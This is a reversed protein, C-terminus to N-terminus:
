SKDPESKPDNNGNADGPVILNGSSDIMMYNVPTYYNDGSERPPRGEEKRVENPNLIGWKVFEIQKKLIFSNDEKAPNDFACFIRIGDAQPYLPIISQNIKDSFLRNRPDITQEEYTNSGTEANAKNVNEVDIMSIPVGYARAIDKDTKKTILADFLMQPSVSVANFELGNDLLPTQGANRYGSYKKLQESLRDFATQSLNEKTGFYGSLAGMNKFIASAYKLAYTDLNVSDVCASLPSRGVAMNSPNPFRCHFVNSGRLRKLGSTTRYEYEKIYATKGLIPTINQSPLIYLERPIGLADKKIEWYDNGTLEMFLDSLQLFETYAFEKNPRYFLELFPHDTIESLDTDASYLIESKTVGPSRNLIDDRYTKERIAFGPFSKSKYGKPAMMYLHLKQRSMVYANKTACAYVLNKYAAILSEPNNPFIDDSQAWARILELGRGEQYVAKEKPKLFNLIGM